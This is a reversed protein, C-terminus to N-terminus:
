EQGLIPQLAPVFACHPYEGDRVGAVIARDVPVQVPYQQCSASTLHATVPAM